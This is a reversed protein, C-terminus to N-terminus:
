QKIIKYSELNGDVTTKIIYNGSTLSSINLQSNLDNVERYIIQQGLMNFLRVKEIPRDARLYLLDGAPNPFLTVSNFNHSETSLNPNPIGMWGFQAITGIIIIGILTTLGTILDVSRLESDFVTNNFAAMFILGTLAARAMGQGFNADFGINGILIAVATIKNIFFLQDSDIDMTYLDGSATIALSIAVVLTTVAVLTAILTVTNIISLSSQSNDSSMAYLKNNDTPDMELGTFTEGNPPTVKGLM